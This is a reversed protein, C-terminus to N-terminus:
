TNYSSDIEFANVNNIEIPKKDFILTSIQTNKHAAYNYTSVGNTNTGIWLGGQNDKMVAVVIQGNISSNIAPDHVFRKIQSITDCRIDLAILGCWTGFFIINCHHDFYM